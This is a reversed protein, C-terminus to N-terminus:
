RARHRLALRAEIDSSVEALEDDRSARAARAGRSCRSVTSLLLNTEGLRLHHERQRPARSCPGETYPLGKIYETYSALDGDPPAYYRGPGFKRRERVVAHFFCLGFLLKKFEASRKVGEVFDTTILTTYSGILNARMGKPPEITMKIGNWTGKDQAESIAAYAIDGQGQGLSIAHLRKGMFGKEEALKYLASMPDAGPTLVFLLPTNCRSDAFCGNLDFQPVEIFRAWRRACSPSSEYVTKWMDLNDVFKDVFGEFGELKGIALVDGWSKDTLWDTEPHVAREMSTNGALFFRLHTPDLKSQGSMIKVTLLFSFLLKDKKEEIKKSKIKSEKLTDILNEDDLINGEATKLLYLIKDEIEKLQRKNEADEMVLQERQAELEAEECAVALGLM